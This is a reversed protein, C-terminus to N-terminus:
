GSAEHTRAGLSVADSVGISALPSPSAALAGTTSHNLTSRNSSGLGNISSISIDSTDNLVSTTASSDDRSSKEHKSGRIDTTPPSPPSPAASPAIRPQPTVVRCPPSISIPRSPFM